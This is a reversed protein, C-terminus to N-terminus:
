KKIQIVFEFGELDHLLNVKKFLQKCFKFIKEPSYYFHKEEFFDVYDSLLDFAVGSRALKTAFKIFNEIEYYNDSFHLKRNFTQSSVIFDIEKIGAPIEQIEGCIYLNNPFKARSITLMEYSVDVGIYDGKFNKNILYEYYNSMGCGVDLVVPRASDLIGISTLKDYRELEKQVTGTSLVDRGSGYKAIRRAYNFNNEARDNTDM